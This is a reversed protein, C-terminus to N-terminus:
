PELGNCDPIGDANCAQGEASLKTSNWIDRLNPAQLQARGDLIFYTWEEDWHFQMTADQILRRNM